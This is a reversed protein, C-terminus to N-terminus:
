LGDFVCVFVHRNIIHSTIISIQSLKVVPCQKAMSPTTTCLQGQRPVSSPSAGSHPESLEFKKVKSENWIVKEFHVRHSLLQTHHLWFCCLWFPFTSLSRLFVLVRVDSEICLPLLRGLNLWFIYLCAYLETLKTTKNHSPLKVTLGTKLCTLDVTASIFIWVLRNQLVSTM